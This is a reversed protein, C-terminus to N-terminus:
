RAVLAHELRERALEPRQMPLFHGTGAVTEIRIRGDARLQAAEDDTRCTSDHEAKLIDIPCYSAAFDSWPDNAQAAFTSAEWAPDCALRVHGNPQDAFGDGIYDTLMDDPWGTFASRPRYADFAALRSPFESRRRRAGDVLRSHPSAGAEALALARRPAIVPDFLVLSRVREPARAAAGLCTAGGMSHGALVIDNAEVAKLLSLLDDRFDDWSVRGEVNTPLNTAGHGRQDVAFVRFRDALPALIRRYTLANFGNAHLFILDCPRDSPGFDLVAIAGQGRGPLAV